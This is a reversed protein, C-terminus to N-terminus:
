RQVLVADLRGVFLRRTSRLPARARKAMYRYEGINVRSACSRDKRVCETVTVSAGLAILRRRDRLLDRDRLSKSLM